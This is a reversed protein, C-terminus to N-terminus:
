PKKLPRHADKGAKWFDVPTTNPQPRGPTSRGDAACKEMMATLRAVVQPQQDQMNRTEGIDDHLDFLQILPQASTDEQGPRPASWGGSGPAFVLKWNGSRIAFSGNISHHVIAEHITAGQRVSLAPLLSVSDEGAEDPIKKRLIDAFTALLDGLWMTADCTSGAKVKGPWRVLFPVRHGGEYIDAKHGRFVHSPNHGKSLLEEFRAMPSCGNDSTVVVLTNKDLGGREIAALIEGIAADTQMVFDAYPNLGSKEHWERTPVIPTHPAALPVYLFFPEENANAKVAAARGDIYEMARRTLVPLVHEGEFDPAAPGKRTMQGPRGFMMPFSKEATPLVACRDNELFTYPVMDLSASIGYYWDFGVANPGNTVPQAYDINHVQEPSEIGLETVQKGPLKVWDMGLHWKGVCGTHYGQQKLFSAVTMRGPEILRPSLGGLVGSKLRSRWAYRGTLLGYRTPTCVASGSHADTFTMGSAALRDLHPTPIKGAPNLCRVDGYGLDDCLIVVINPKGNSDAASALLAPAACYGIFMLAAFFFAGTPKM